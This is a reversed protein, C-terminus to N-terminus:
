QMALGAASTFVSPRVTHPAYAMEGAAAIVELVRPAVPGFAKRVGIFHGWSGEVEVKAGALESCQSVLERLNKIWAECPLADLQVVTTDDGVYLDAMEMRTVRPTAATFQPYASM